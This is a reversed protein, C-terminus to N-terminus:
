NVVIFKNEGILVYSDQNYIEKTLPNIEQELYNNQYLTALTIKDGECKDEHVCKLAAEVIRKESVMLLNNNHRNIVKYATFGAILLLSLIILSFSLKKM